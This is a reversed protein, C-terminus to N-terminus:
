PFKKLGYVKGNKTYFNQKFTDFSLHVGTPNLVYRATPYAILDALQLGNINERKWSFKTKFGLKRIREPTVYYTGVQTIKQIHKSLKLDEKKGRKEIIIELESCDKFDDLCFIARELVFSLAIEYVDNELKGYKKIFALKSISSSIIKYNNISILNNVAKYFRKKLDLDFFIQFENNCKRIDRSHFVVNNNNWFELKIKNIKEKVIKYNEESVLIGCLLFIPFNEDIKELGHDGSEDLFLYYKM